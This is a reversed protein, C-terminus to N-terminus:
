LSELMVMEKDWAGLIQWYIGFPSQVLLIPDNRKVEKRFDKEEAIVYFIPRKGCLEIVKKEYEDMINIAEKPFKPIFLDSTELVVTYKSLLDNIKDTTTCDFKDFFKKYENYKKRNELRTVMDIIEKKAYKNKKIFKVKSKLILIKEDINEMTINSPVRELEDVIDIPKMKIKPKVKTAKLPSDAIISGSIINGSAGSIGIIADDSHPMYINDDFGNATIGGGFEDHFDYLYVYKDAAAEEITFIEGNVSARSQRIIQSALDAYMKLKEKELEVISEKTPFFRNKVGKIKNKLKKLAM